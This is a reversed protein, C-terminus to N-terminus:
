LSLPEWHLGGAMVASGTELVAELQGVTTADPMLLAHGTGWVVPSDCGHGAQPSSM